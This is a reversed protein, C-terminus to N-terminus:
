HPSQMYILKFFCPENNQVINTGDTLADQQCCPARNTKENISLVSSMQKRILMVYINLFNVM